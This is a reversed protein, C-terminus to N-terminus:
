RAFCADARVSIHTGEDLPRPTVKLDFREFPPLFSRRPYRPRTSLRGAGQDALSVLGSLHRAVPRYTLGQGHCVWLFADPLVSCRDAPFISMHPTPSNKCLIVAAVAPCSDVAATAERSSAM